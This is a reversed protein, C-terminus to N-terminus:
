AGGVRWRQALRALAVGLFGAVVGFFGVIVVEFPWLNHTTPDRSTEVAIRGLVALVYGAAVALAPIARNGRLRYGSWLGALAGFFLLSAASPNGPLDVERYELPWLLMGCALLGALVATAVRLAM